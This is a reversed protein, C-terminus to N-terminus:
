EYMIRWLKGINNHLNEETQWSRSQSIPDHIADSTQDM